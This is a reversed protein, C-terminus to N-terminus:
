RGGVKVALINTPQPSAKLINIHTSFRHLHSSILILIAVVGRGGLPVDAAAAAELGVVDARDGLLQALLPAAADRRAALLVVGPAVPEPHVGLRPDPGPGPPGVPLFQVRAGPAREAGAQGPGVGPPHGLAALLELLVRLLGRLRLQLLDVM